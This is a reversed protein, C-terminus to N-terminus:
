FSYKVFAGGHFFDKLSADGAYRSADSDIALNYSAHGVISLCDNLPIEAELGLALNNAGNHGDSIYGSNAGFLLFPSVSLWSKVEYEGSVGFEFFAGGAEFSYYGLAFVSLNWPLAGYEIGLGLENDHAEDSPFRLHTYALSLEFDGIEHTYQVWADFEEYSQDPSNAYWAGVTFGLYGLELTTNLLGAGDLNDRGESVYRSDWGLALDMLVGTSEMSRAGIGEPIVHELSVAESAARVGGALGLSFLFLCCWKSAPAILSYGYGIKM